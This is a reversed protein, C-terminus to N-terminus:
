LKEKTEAPKELLGLKQLVEEQSPNMRVQRWEGDIILRKARRLVAMVKKYTTKELLGAKDFAKILRFNLLSSLFDLFELFESGIVSYDDHARTEDLQCSSKYFRM